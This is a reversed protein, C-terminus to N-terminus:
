DVDSLYKKWRRHVWMWDLPHQLIIKELISNYNQTTLQISQERNEGLEPFVESGVEIVNKGQANRYTWVPLVPVGTKISFLSLGYATGTQIGFFTTEVGYPPGMYQDLVFIVIENKKLIKLIEFSSNKGHPDLFQAGFRRRTGFWFENLWKIKFHKSIVNLPYGKHALMSIAMDGHGLHLSLLCVGKEKNLASDLNELGRYEIHSQIWQGNIAPFLCFESFNFLLRRISERGWQVREYLPKEPYVRQLNRLVLSRRFRLVDFLFFALVYSLQWRWQDPLRILIRSITRGFHGLWSKM